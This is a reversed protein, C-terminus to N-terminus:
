PLPIALLVVEKNRAQVQYRVPRGYKAAADREMGQIRTSFAQESIHDTQEGLAKKAAIYERYIRGYYQTPAEAALRNVAEPDLTGEGEMRKDDVAMADTFHAASPPRSERGEADTTDEEVGMLQNLLQDIRFALGGLEAHELEFRRDAQGNLIALLGEELVGIPGMIYNGLLWGFVFVLVIGIAMAGLIPLSLSTADGSILSSPAAAVLVARKGDGLAELPASAVYLDGEKVVDAHATSMAKKISEGTKAIAADLQANTTSSHAVVTMNDPTVLALARGTTADSAKSLSDNMPRGVLLAGVVKGTADRVPAYTALNHDSVSFDSGTQGSGLTGKLGPYQGLADEGRNQTTANRGVITGKTDVLACYTPVNMEFTRDGKMVNLLDNCLKTAADGRASPASASLPDASAPESAKDRLWREARLAEYQIKAAAGQVDRKADVTLMDQNSTATVLAGRMIVFSLVGVLLVIAANIAIIKLRM